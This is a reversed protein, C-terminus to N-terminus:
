HRPAPQNGSDITREPARATIQEPVPLKPFREALLQAIEAKSKHAAAALLEAANGRGLYPAMLALGSLHLRGDAVAAFLEPCRRGAGAAHPGKAAADEALGLGGMCYATMSPYAAPLYLKREDVEAIHALVDATAARENAVVMALGRLLAPDSLHSLSYSKVSCEEVPALPRPSRERQLMRTKSRRLPASTALCRM